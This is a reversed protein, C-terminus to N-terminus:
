APFSCFFHSFKWGAIQVPCLCNLLHAYLEQSPDCLGTPEKYLYLNENLFLMYEEKMCYVEFVAEGSEVGGLEEWRWVRGSESWVGGSTGWLFAPIGPVDVLCLVVLSLLGPMSEGILTASPLGSPLFPGWFTLSLRGSNPPEGGLLM